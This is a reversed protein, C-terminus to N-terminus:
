NPFKHGSVVILTCDSSLIGVLKCTLLLFKSMKKCLYPIANIDPISKVDFM